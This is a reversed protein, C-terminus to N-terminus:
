SCIHWAELACSQHFPGSAHLSFYTLFRPATVDPLTDAVMKHVSFIPSVPTRNTPHERTGSNHLKGRTLRISPLLTWFTCFPRLALSISASESYSDVIGPSVQITHPLLGDCSGLAKKWRFVWTSSCSPKSRKSNDLALQPVVGM